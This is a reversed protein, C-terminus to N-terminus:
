FDKQPVNLEVVECKEICDPNILIREKGRTVVSYGQAIAQQTKQFVVGGYNGAPTLKEFEDIDIFKTGPKLKCKVAARYQSLRSVTDNHKKIDELNPYAYFGRIYGSVLKSFDIGNQAINEADKVSKTGHFVYMNDELEDDVIERLMINNSLVKEKALKIFHMGSEKDVLLSEGGLKKWFPIAKQWEVAYLFINDFPNNEFIKKIISKGIGSRQIEPNVVFGGGFFISNPFITQGKKKFYDDPDLKIDGMKFIGFNAVQEGNLYARNSGMKVKNDQNIILDPRITSNTTKRIDSTPKNVPKDQPNYFYERVKPIKPTTKQIDTRAFPSSWVIDGLMVNRRDFILIFDDGNRTFNLGIFGLPSLLEDPDDAEDNWLLDLENWDLTQNTVIRQFNNFPLRNQLIERHTPNSLDFIKGDKVKANFVLGTPAAKKAKSLDDVLIIDSNAFAKTDKLPHYYTNM